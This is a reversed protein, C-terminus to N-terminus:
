EAPFSTASYVVAAGGVFGVVRYVAVSINPDGLTIV